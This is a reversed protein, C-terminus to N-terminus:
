SRPYDVISLYHADIIREWAQRAIALFDRIEMGNFPDTPDDCVIYHFTQHIGKSPELHIGTPDAFAFGVKPRELVLHKSGNALDACVLISKETHIDSKLKSADKPRFGPDNLVWDKLHWMCQCAYVVIDEFTLVGSLSFQDKSRVIEMLRDIRELQARFDREM